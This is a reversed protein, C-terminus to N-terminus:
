FTQKKHKKKKLQSKSLSGKDEERGESNMLNCSQHNGKGGEPCCTQAQIHGLQGSVMPTELSLLERWGSGFLRLRVGVPLLWPQRRAGLFFVPIEKMDPSGPM